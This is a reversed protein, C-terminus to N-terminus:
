SRIPFNRTTPKSSIAYGEGGGSGCCSSQVEGGSRGVLAYAVNDVVLPKPIPFTCQPAPDSIRLLFQRCIVADYAEISKARGEVARAVARFSSLLAAAVAWAMRLM